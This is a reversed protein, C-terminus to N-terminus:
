CLLMDHAWDVTSRLHSCLDAMHAGRIVETWAALVTRQVEMLLM